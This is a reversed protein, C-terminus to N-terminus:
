RGALLARRASAQRGTSMSGWAPRGATPRSIHRLESRLARAGPFSGGRYTTVRARPVGLSRRLKAPHIGSQGSCCSRGGARSLRGGAGFAVRHRLRASADDSDQPQCSAHRAPADDYSAPSMALTISRRSRGFEPVSRADRLPRRRHGRLFLVFVRASRRM